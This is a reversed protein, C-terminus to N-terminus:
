RDAPQRPPRPLTTSATPRREDSSSSRTRSAAAHPARRPQRRRPPRHGRDAAAAAPRDDFIRFYFSIVRLILAGVSRASPAASAASCRPAASSSPPSRTSRTPAPRRSTPTAPRPRSARPVARRLRRLLRGLTFAAIKARDIPLGSMYAAGEASGIAYVTRGTVSRRFPLWVLLSSAPAAPDFPVPIGAFPSSGPPAATTSSATPRRLRRARQDAGLESGRRGQRGPTPRLFLAIGIYIPAPPSRRSSRSSAATSSSSATSRLGAARRGRPLRRHRPAIEVPPRHGSRQRHLRRADDGRRGLPRPRRDAGARDAGDGRLALAFSRTPTRCSSPPPSARRIASTTSCASSAPVPVIACRALGCTRARTAAALDSM